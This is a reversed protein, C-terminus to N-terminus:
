LQNVCIPDFVMFCMFQGTLNAADLDRGFFQFGYVNRGSLRGFQPGSFLSLRGSQPWSHQDFKTFKLITFKWFNDFNFDEFKSAKV